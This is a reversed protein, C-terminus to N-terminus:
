QSIGTSASLEVQEHSQMSSLYSGADGDDFYMIVDRDFENKVHITRYEEKEFRLENHLEALKSLRTSLLVVVLIFLAVIAIVASGFIVIWRDKREKGSM